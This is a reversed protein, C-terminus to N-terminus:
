YCEEFEVGCLSSRQCCMGILCIEAANEPKAELRCIEQCAIQFYNMKEGLKFHLRFKDAKM